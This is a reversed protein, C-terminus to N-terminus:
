REAQPAARRDGWTVLDTLPADDAGVGVLSHMAASFALGAVERGAARAGALTGRAAALVADVVVAPEQVAWGPEPELLPYAVETAGTEDGDADFAAAKASTPGIDIGM